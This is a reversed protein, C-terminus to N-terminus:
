FKIELDLIVLSTALFSVTPWWGELLGWFQFVFQTKIDLFKNVAVTKTSIQLRWVGAVEVLFVRSSVRCINVQQLNTRWYISMFDFEFCNARLYYYTNGIFIKRYGKQQGSCIEFIHIKTKRSIVNKKTLESNILFCFLQKHCRQPM